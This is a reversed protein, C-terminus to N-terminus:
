NGLARTQRVWRYRGCSRCFKQKRGRKLWRDAKNAAEMYGTDDFARSRWKNCSPCGDTM